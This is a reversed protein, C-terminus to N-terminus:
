VEKPHRHKRARMASARNTNHVSQALLEHVQQDANKWRASVLHALRELILSGAEPHSLALSRLSEGRLRLAEVDDGAVADSTYAPNGVIASWGVGGGASITTLDIAPGDYPKYRIVVNGRAVLYFFEAPEGTHFLVTESPCSFKEFLPEVLTLTTSDLGTFLSTLLAHTPM